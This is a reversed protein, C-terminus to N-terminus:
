VQGPFGVLEDLYMSSDIFQLDPLPQDLLDQLLPDCLAMGATMVEPASSRQAVYSVNITSNDMSAVAATTAGKMIGAKRTMMLDILATIHKHAEAAVFNGSDLLRSLLDAAVEFQEHDSQRERSDLLSSIGLVTAASFLYQTYFYDFIM